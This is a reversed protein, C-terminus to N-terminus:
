LAATPLLPKANRASRIRKSMRPAQHRVIKGEVLFIVDEAINTAHAGIRDLSQFISWLRLLRDFQQSCNPPSKQLDACMKQHLAVLARGGACIRGAKEVDMRIFADLADRLMSLATDAMKKFGDLFGVLDEPQGRVVQESLKVAMDGIREL